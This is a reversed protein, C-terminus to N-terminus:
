FISNSKKKTFRSSCWPLAHGLDDIIIDPNIKKIMKNVKLHARINGNIRYTKIGDVIEYDLLNGPNVCVLNVDIDLTALRKGVEYITREAGGAKPHKIDRHAFWIIKM